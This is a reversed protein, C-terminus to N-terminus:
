YPRTPESIHILSLIMSAIKGSKSIREIDAATDAMEFVDPYRECMDHVLQIQELTQILANGTRDTSAPVYVSWFQAKLGGAKLRPIDTHFKTPKAIDIKDFSSGGKTRMAWPLDNHGDFLMGSMHIERAQDSIDVVPKSAGQAIVNSSSFVLTCIAFVFMLFRM